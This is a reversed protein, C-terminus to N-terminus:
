LPYSGRHKRKYLDRQNQDNQADMNQYCLNARGEMRLSNIVDRIVALGRNGLIDTKILGAMETQDKEWQIVPLGKASIEVPVYSDIREPTVIVGGCHVSLHRLVGEVMSACHLIKLWTQSLEIRGLRDLTHSIEDEKIGFVKAVERLASRDRLFNHNAVMAARGQYKEFIADLVDDRQDWPFDVDIDPPDSRDVNMFRDFLLNEAIPDVHTIRLLYNVLSAASSGRGCTYECLAAMEEVNLFYSSFNKHAIVELEYDLRERTKELTEKDASGYRLPINKECKERLIEVCRSEPLGNHGPMIPTNNFWDPSLQEALQESNKIADPYPAFYNELEGPSFMRCHENHYASMDVQSLTTNGDIARLIKYYPAKEKEIYHIKNNALLPINQQRAWQVDKHSFFGRSMEFYIPANKIAELFIKHRSFFILGGDPVDLIALADQLSFNPSQKMQTLFLCLSQYGSKNKVLATFHFHQHRIEAGIIPKVKFRKAQAIFEPIGYLGNTDTLALAKAGYTQAKELLREPTDLGGMPSFNSHANLYAKM